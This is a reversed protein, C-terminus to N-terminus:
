DWDRLVDKWAGFVSKPQIVRIVCGFGLAGRMIISLCGDKWDKALTMAGYLEDPSVAKPNIVDVVCPHKNKAHGLNHHGALAQWM